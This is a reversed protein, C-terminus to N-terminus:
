PRDKGYHRLFIDIIDDYDHQPQWGWEQRARSDDIPLAIMDLVPKWKEDPQFDIEAAPIKAKVKHALEVASPTPKVGDVLYNVTTINEAPVRALEFIARAADQASLVPICTEPSVNVTYPNGRISEEIMAYTYTVVGGVRLDIGPGVISPYRLSRFDIRHRRRFFLGVGESFLKAVGYMSVPRQLSNDRLMKEQLDLGFTTVSSAFLVQGVGFRRAAELINFTALANVQIAKEPHEECAAGLMAGLHYVAQPKTKEVAAFIGDADSLDARIYEVRDSVDELRRPSEVADLVAVRSAENELLLHVLASGLLGAGGTVLVSM